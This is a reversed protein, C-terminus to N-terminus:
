SSCVGSSNDGDFQSTPIDTPMENEQNIIALLPGLGSHTRDYRFM